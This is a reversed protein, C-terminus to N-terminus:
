QAPACQCSVCNESNDPYTHQMTFKITPHMQNLEDLFLHLDAVSGTFIMFIDDLFRKFFRIPFIGNGFKAAVKKIIEDIKRAM